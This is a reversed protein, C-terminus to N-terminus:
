KNGRFLVAKMKVTPRTHLHREEPLMNKLLRKERNIRDAEETLERVQAEPMIVTEEELDDPDVVEDGTPTRVINFGGVGSGLWLEFGPEFPVNSGNDNNM